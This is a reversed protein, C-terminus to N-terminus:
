PKCEGPKAITLDKSPYLDKDWPFGNPFVICTRGSHIKDDKRSNFKCPENFRKDTFHVKSGLPSVTLIDGEYGLSYYTETVHAEEIALFCRPANQTQIQTQIEQIQSELNSIKAEKDKNNTFLIFSFFILCVLLILNVFSRQTQKEDNKVNERRAEEVPDITKTNVWIAEIRQNELLISYCRSFVPDIKIEFYEIKRQETEEKNKREVEARYQNKSGNKICIEFKKGCCNYTEELCNCKGELFNELDISTVSGPCFPCLFTLIATQKKLNPYSATM